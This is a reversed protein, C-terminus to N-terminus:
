RRERADVPRMAGDLFAEFQRPDLRVTATEHSPDPTGMGPFDVDADGDHLILQGTGDAFGHVVLYRVLPRTDDTHNRGLMAITGRFTPDPAPAADLADSATSALLAKAAAPRSGMPLAAVALGKLFARRTPSM